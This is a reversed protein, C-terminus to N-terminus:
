GSTETRGCATLTEDLIERHQGTSCVVVESGGIERLARVVLALKIAEPRTGLIRKSESPVSVQYRADDGDAPLDQSMPFPM